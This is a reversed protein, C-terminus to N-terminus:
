SRVQTEGSAARNRMLREANQAMFSEGLSGATFSGKSSPRTFSSGYIENTVASHEARDYDSGMYVPDITASPRRFGPTNTQQVSSPRFEIHEAHDDSEEAGEPILPESSEYIVHESNPSTGLTAVRGTIDDESELASDEIAQDSLAEDGGLAFDLDGDVNVKSSSTSSPPPTNAASSSEALVAHPSHQRSQEPTNSQCTVTPSSHAPNISRPIDATASAKGNSRESSAPSRTRSHSPTNNHSNLTVPVNDSPAVISDGVALSVRKKRPRHTPSKLASPLKGSGDASSGSSSTRGSFQLHVPTKADAQAVPESNARQVGHRGANKKSSFTSPPPASDAREREAEAAKGDVHLANNVHVDLAPLFAPTFVGIFERDREISARRDTLGAVCQRAQLTTGHEDDDVVATVALPSATQRRTRQANHKSILEKEFSKYEREKAAIYKHISEDLQKRKAELREVDEDPLEADALWRRSSQRRTTTTTTSSGSGERDRSAREREAM